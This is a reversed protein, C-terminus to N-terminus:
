RIYSVYADLVKKYGDNKLSDIVYDKIESTPYVNRKISQMRKLVSNSIIKIDSTSLQISADKAANKISQLLKDAKYEELVGSKKIVYERNDNLIEDLVTLKIGELEQSIESPSLNKDNYYDIIIKVLDQM